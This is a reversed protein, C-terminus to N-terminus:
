SGDPDTEEELTLPDEAHAQETANPQEGPDLDARRAADTADVDEGAPVGGLDVPKEQGPM